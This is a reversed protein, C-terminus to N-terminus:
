RSLYAAMVKALDITLPTKAVFPAGTWGLVDHCILAPPITITPDPPSFPNIAGQRGDPGVPMRFPLPPVQAQPPVHRRWASRPVAPLLDPGVVSYHGLAVADGTISNCGMDWAGALVPGGVAEVRQWLVAVAIHRAMFFKLSLVFRTGVQRFYVLFQQRIELGNRNGVDVELFGCPIPNTAILDPGVSPNTVTFNPVIHVDPDRRVDGFTYSVRAAVSFLDHATNIAWVAMTSQIAFSVRSHESAIHLGVIELSSGYQAVVPRYNGVLLCPLRSHYDRTEDLGSAIVLHYSSLANYDPHATDGLVVPAALAAYHECAEM